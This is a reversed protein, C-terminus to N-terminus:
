NKTNMQKQYSQSNLINLLLDINLYNNKILFFISRHNNIKKILNFIPTTWSSDSVDDNQGCDNWRYDNQKFDNFRTMKDVTMEDATMKVATAEDATM